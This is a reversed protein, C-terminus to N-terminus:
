VRDRAENFIKLRLCRMPEPVVIQYLHARILAETVGQIKLQEILSVRTTENWM